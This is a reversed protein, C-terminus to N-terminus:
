INCLVDYKLMFYSKQQFNFKPLITTEHFFKGTKLFRYKVDQSVSFILFFLLFLCIWYIM